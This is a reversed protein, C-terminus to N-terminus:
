PRPRVVLDAWVCRGPGDLEVGWRQALGAVIQLGRGDVADWGATRLRPATASGGDTVWLQVRDPAASWCVEIVGHHLPRAHRVANGVLESVVTVADAALDPDVEVDRLAALLRTRAVAAGRAHHPVCVNWARERVGTTM